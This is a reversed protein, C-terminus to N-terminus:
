ARGGQIASLATARAEHRPLGAQVGAAEVLATAYAASLTGHQVQEALRCGAWFLRRNREGAPAQAAFRLLNSLSADDPVRPPAPDRPAPKPPLLWEPFQAPPADSIRTYGLARWDIASAGASRLEVGGGIRNLAITPVGPRYQFVWHQGGSKTAYVETEPLRDVQDALWDLGGHQADVDLVVIGSPEGTAAAPVLGPRSFWERIQAADRTADKVGHACAPRKTEPNMPFVARGAAALFLAYRRTM